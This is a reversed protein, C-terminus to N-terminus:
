VKADGSLHRRLIPSHAPSGWEGGVAEATIALNTGCGLCSIFIPFSTGLLPNSHVLRTRPATKAQAANMN